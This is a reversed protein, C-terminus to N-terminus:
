PAVVARDRSTSWMPPPYVTCTCKFGNMRIPEAKVDGGKKRALVGSMSSLAMRQREGPKTANVVLFQTKDPIDM